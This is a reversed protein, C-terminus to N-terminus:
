LGMIDVELGSNKIVKYHKDNARNPILTDDKSYDVMASDIEETSYIYGKGGRAEIEFAGNPTTITGFSMNRGETLVVSYDGGDDLLHGIVTVTGSKHIKKSIIQANFEGDGMNPLYVIDGIKLNKISKKPINIAILPEVEEKPPFDKSVEDITTEVFIDVIREEKIELKNDEEQSINLDIQSIVLTLNAEVKDKQSQSSVDKIVIPVSKVKKDIQEKSSSFLFYLVIVLVILLGSWIAKKM